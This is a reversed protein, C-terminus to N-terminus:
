VEGRARSGRSSRGTGCIIAAVAFGGRPALTVNVTGAWPMRRVLRVSAPSRLGSRARSPVSAFRHDAAALCHRRCAGCIRWPCRLGTCSTVSSNPDSGRPRRGISIPDTSANALDEEAVSRLEGSVSQSARRHLAQRIIRPCRLRNRGSHNAQGVPEDPWGPPPPHV